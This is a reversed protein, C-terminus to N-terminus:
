NRPIINHYLTTDRMSEGDDYHLKDPIYHMANTFGYPPDAGPPLGLARFTLMKESVLFGIAIAVGCMPELLAQMDKAMEGNVDTAIANLIELAVWALHCVVRRVLLGKQESNVRQSTFPPIVTVLMPVISLVVPTTQFSLTYWRHGGHCWSQNYFSIIDTGLAVSAAGVGFGVSILLTIIVGIPRAIVLRRWRHVDAAYGLWGLSVSCLMGVSAAEHIFGSVECHSNSYRKGEEPFAFINVFINASVVFSLCLSVVVFIHNNYTHLHFYHAYLVLTFVMVICSIASSILAILDDVSRPRDQLPEM